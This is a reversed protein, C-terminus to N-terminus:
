DLLRQDYPYRTLREVGTATVTVVDELRVGGGGPVGDVLITPVVALVAGEELVLKPTSRGPPSICPPEAYGVGIGHASIMKQLKDTLGAPGLIDATIAQLETPEPGPDLGWILARHPEPGRRRSQACLLDPACNGRVSM